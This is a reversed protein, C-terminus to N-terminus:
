IVNGWYPKLKRFVFYGGALSAFALVVVVVWAWPHRVEGFFLVDQYVWTVYSFPNCYILPLLSRPAWAPLYVAPTFYMAVVSFVSVVERVDRVFPTIASLLFAIGWLLMLHLLVVLPLALALWSLGGALVIKYGIVVIAAPIFSIAVALLTSTPLVEVPFIVQKVLNANGLLSSTSRSMVHQTILWPLLGILVYSSYDGPFDQTMNLRSGLVFGFILLYVGVTVLPVAFSWLKAVGHGAMSQYLERRTMEAVLDLAGALRPSLRNIRLM